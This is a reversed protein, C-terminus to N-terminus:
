RKMEISLIMLRMDGEEAAAGAAELQYAAGARCLQPQQASTSPQRRPVRAGAKPQVVDICLDARAHLGAQSCVGNGGETHM